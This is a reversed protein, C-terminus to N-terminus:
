KKAGYTENFDDFQKQYEEYREKSWLEIRNNVGVSVLDKEIKGYKLFDAKLLCRGQADFELEMANAFFKREKLVKAEDYIDDSSLKEAMAEFEQKTFIYLCGSAGKTIYAGDDFGIKLTPPIRFRNKADLQHNFTGFKM